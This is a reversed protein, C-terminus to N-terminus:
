RVFVKKRNERWELYDKIIQPHDFVIKEFPIEDPSFALARKADDGGALEQNPDAKCAFAITVAHGRPDRKPDSYIGLIGEIEVDLSTEEKVERIVAESVKEGVEVFGGPLALGHPYNKREVLVIKGGYDIIADVTLLPTEPKGM